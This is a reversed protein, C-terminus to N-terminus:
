GRTGEGAAVAHARVEALGEEAGQALGPAGGHPRGVHRARAGASQGHLLGHSRVGAVAAGPVPVGRSGVRQLELHPLVLLRRVPDEAEAAADGRGGSGGPALSDRQRVPLAEDEVQARVGVVGHLAFAHDRREEGEGHGVLLAASLPPELHEFPLPGRVRQKKVELRLLEGLDELM